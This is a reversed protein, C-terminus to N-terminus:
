MITRIRSSEIECEGSLDANWLSISSFGFLSDAFTIKGGSAQIGPFDLLAGRVSAGDFKLHGSGLRADLFVVVGHPSKSWVMDRSSVDKMNRLSELWEYVFGSRPSLGSSHGAGIQSNTFNLCGGDIKAGTFDLCCDELRSYEFDLVGGTFEGCDFSLVGCPIKTNSFSIRGGL